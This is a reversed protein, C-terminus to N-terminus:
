ILNKRLQARPLKAVSGDENDAIKFLTGRTPDHVISLVSGKRWYGDSIAATGASLAPNPRFDVIEGVTFDPHQASTALGFKELPYNSAFSQRYIAEYYPHMKTTPKCRKARHQGSAKGPASRGTPPDNTLDEHTQKGDTTIAEEIMDVDDTNDDSEVDIHAQQLFAKEEETLNVLLVQECSPPAFNPRSFFREYPTQPQTAKNMRNNYEYYFRQLQEHWKEELFITRKFYEVVTRNFREVRGQSQPHYPRGNMKLIKFENLVETLDANNFEKGNDSQLIRPAGYTYVFSILARTVDKAGKGRLPCGFAFRSFCDVVNLIYNYGNQMPMKKFDIQWRSNPYTAPIPRRTAQTKPLDAAQACLTCKIEQKFLLEISEKAVPYYLDRLSEYIARSKRHDRDHNKRIMEVLEEKKLCRRHGTKNDQSKFFICDCDEDYFFTEMRKRIHRDSGLDLNPCNIKIRNAGWQPNKQKLKVITEIEAYNAWFLEPRDKTKCPKNKSKTFIIGENPLSSSQVQSDM